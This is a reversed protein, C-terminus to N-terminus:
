EEGERELLARKREVGWRYGAVDGDARVVRHCPIAVALRNAACARAVARVAGPAGVREALQSYSLTQGTAIGQLATWVREQFATGRIDLPLRAERRPEEVWGVVQAVWGEFEADGGVLEARPFQRELEHLLDAPEDGLSIACVGRETAAM